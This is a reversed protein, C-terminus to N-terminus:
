VTRSLRFGLDYDRNSPAIRLRFAARCYDAAYYWAGGRVVRGSGANPGSPARSALPQATSVSLATDRRGIGLAGAIRRWTSPRQQGSRQATASAALATALQQYYDAAYWDACWEWCNGHMDYLGWDNAHRQGAPHLRGEANDSFWAYESLCASDDGCCWRTATGARCAYEWQAETPLAYREGTQASLWACYARADEWSVGVVPLDLAARSIGRNAYFDNKGTELHYESGTELWEPWHTDTAECFRRYEGWSVPTRGLAFAPLAVPHVPQEDASGQADGMQFVGGPLYVMAPADGAAAAGVRDASNLHDRFVEYPAFRRPALPETLTVPPAAGLTFPYSSLPGTRSLRFGLNGDRASPAFWDRYAARCYDATFNWAGGRVVRNSGTAPGSPNESPPPPATDTDTVAYPGSHPGAAATVEPDGTRVASGVRVASGASVASGVPNVKDYDAYWDACWEWCNGHLDHLGWANARKGGVPRTGDSVQGGYWAYDGLQQADDGFCYLGESGARCAHEWQAETLLGYTRGTAQSLWTCYAQADKWSICVVPHDDSQKFYPNRWSADKKEVYNNDHWVYAGGGTEAETRYGSSEVFRRFEGVTVPYQGVAYHSLRVPHAPRERDEGVGEPSGMRFTGGPLWVMAPGPETSGAIPDRFPTPATPPEEVVAPSETSDPPAPTGAGSLDPVPVGEVLRQAGSTGAVALRQALAAPDRLLRAVEAAYDLLQPHAALNARLAETLRVLRALEAAPCGGTGAGPAAATWAQGLAATIERAATGRQDELYAMASWQEAQLEAPSLGAGGRGLHRCYRLLLRAAERMRPVGDPVAALEAILVARVDQDMAFQEYGIPRCLDSLLLDAESIWSAHGCDSFFHVRLYNVLEPTLILPLAAFWALRRHPEGFRRAFRAIRAAALDAPAATM